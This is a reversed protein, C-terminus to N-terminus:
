DLLSLSVPVQNVDVNFFDNIQPTISEPPLITEISDYNEHTVCPFSQTPVQPHEHLPSDNEYLSSLIDSLHQQQEISSPNTFKIDPRLPGSIHQHFHHAISPNPKCYFSAM